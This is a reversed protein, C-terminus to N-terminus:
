WVRLHDQADAVGFAPVLAYPVGDVLQAHYNGAVRDVADAVLEDADEHEAPRSVDVQRALDDPLTGEVAAELVLVVGYLYELAVVRLDLPTNGPVPQEDVIYLCAPFGQALEEPDFHWVFWEGARVVRCLHPAPQLSYLGDRDPYRDGQHDQNPGRESQEAPAGSSLSGAGSSRAQRFARRHSGSTWRRCAQRRRRTDRGGSVGGMRCPGAM